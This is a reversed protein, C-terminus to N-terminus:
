HQPRIYKKFFEETPVPKGYLYGQGMQCQMDRLIQEQVKTEVGEAIVDIGLDKCMFIINKLILQYSAEDGLAGVLSKDLKLMSFDIDALISLNTYKTGFDDLSIAFGAQYLDYAAQYIVSKGMDAVSETIEIEVFKRPIDYRAIIAEMSTLLDRELLTLRSFNLSVVPLAAGQEKWMALQRCVEEFVFLDVFRILNNKELLDIFQSPPILGKEKHRYRVLAEAGIVENHLLEVKPQMFVEFEHNELAELLGKLMRGRETNDSNPVSDYHRKKNIKMTQTAQEILVSLDKEVNDWSYGVSVTFADRARIMEELQGVKEELLALGMDEAIVMFEDGNMRFIKGEGFIDRLMDAFQGILYNGTVFGQASNIGKLNDFNAMVVGVCAVCDHDYDVVANEFSKRSLLNTLDDYRSAYLANEILQRKRLENVFFVSFSEMFAVNQFNSSINDIEICAQEGDTSELGVWRQNKIGESKMLEYMDYSHCLMAEPSELTVPQELNRGDLWANVEKVGSHTNAESGDRNWRCVCAYESGADQRRWLRVMDARFFCGITEMANHMAESLTKAEAMRQVGSLLNHSEMEKNDISDVISKNNSIDVALALMVERGNWMVLKNKILFEQELALNLNRWMYFKDTSWNAQSCFPCPASRKQMAEYCKMGVCQEATLGLRDYFAKNGCILDFTDPDVLYAIDGQDSIFADFDSSQAAPGQTESLLNVNRRQEDSLAGAKGRVAEMGGERFFVFRCKGETKAQYLAVDAQRFMHEYEAAGRLMSIGISCTPMGTQEEKELLDYLNNLREVAKEESGINDLFIIFEDGGFRGIVDSKRFASSLINALGVLVDDGAQHGFSDNIQKFNDLDLIMFASLENESANLLRERITEEAMKRNYMNTLQDRRSDNLLILEQKKKADINKISLLALVHGSMPDQFLHISLQMWMMKNQDVIRRFECGLKDIGDELSEIFNARQMIELYHKRDEPHVVKNIFEEILHSYTVKDIIENYLNWMGGIRTIRDETVDVQAYADKESLMAQYFQTENLYTRAAEKEQTIVALTGVAYRASEQRISLTLRVWMDTNGDPNIKLERVAREGDRKLNLFTERWVTEYKKPIVDCAIMREAFDRCAGDADFFETPLVVGASYFRASGTEMDYLFCDLDIQRALICLIDETEELMRRNQEYASIDFSVCDFVPEQAHEVCIIETHLWRERGVQQRVRIPREDGQDFRKIAEDFAKISDSDFLACLRSGYKDRLEDETCGLLDYFAQNASHLILDKGKATYAACVPEASLQVATEDNKEDANEKNKLIDDFM